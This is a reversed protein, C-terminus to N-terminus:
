PVLVQITPLNNARKGGTAKIVLHAYPFWSYLMILDCANPRDLRASKLIYSFCDAYRTHGHVAADPVEFEGARQQNPVSGSLDKHFVRLIVM